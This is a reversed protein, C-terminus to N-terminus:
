RQHGRSVDRVATSPDSSPEAKYPELLEQLAAVDTKHNFMKVGADTKAVNADRTKKKAGDREQVNLVEAQNSRKGSAFELVCLTPPNYYSGGCLVWDATYFGGDILEEEAGRWRDFKVVPDKWDFDGMRIKISQKRRHIQAFCTCDRLTMAIIFCPDSREAYLPGLKDHLDQQAKLERIAHHNAISRLAERYHEDSGIGALQPALRFPSNAQWPADENVLALPCPKREPLKRDRSPDKVLNRLEMACQRCRVAAEPASPSQSLWKPKFEILVCEDPDQPRMDEVLFGWDTQGIFTGRFKAKRSQDVDRLFKNLEDVVGSKHLNVLEQQVAHIGLLPRIAAQYFDQQVLYNYTPPHNLSPVKAVRLLLGTFDPDSCSHRPIKFEFVANAAGEGILKIPRTGRPLRRVRSQRLGARGKLGPDAGLAQLLAMDQPTVWPDDDDFDGAVSGRNPTTSQSPVSISEDSIDGASDGQNSGSDESRQPPVVQLAMIPPLPGAPRHLSSRSSSPQQPQQLAAPPSSSPQHM